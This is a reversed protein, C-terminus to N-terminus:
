GEAEARRFEVSGKYVAWIHPEAQFRPCASANSNTNRRDKDWLTCPRTHTHTPATAVHRDVVGSKEASSRVIKGQVLFTHGEALCPAM